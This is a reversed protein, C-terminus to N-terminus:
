IPQTTPQASKFPPLTPIAMFFAFAPSRPGAFLLAAGFVTSSYMAPTGSGPRLVNFFTRATIRDATGAYAVSTM